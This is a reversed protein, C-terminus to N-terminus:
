CEVNLQQLIRLASGISALSVRSKKIKARLQAFSEKMGWVRLVLALGERLECNRNESIHIRSQM